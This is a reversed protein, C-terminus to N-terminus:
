NVVKTWRYAAEKWIDGCFCTAREFYSFQDYETDLIVRMENPVVCTYEFELTIKFYKKLDKDSLLEAWEFRGM